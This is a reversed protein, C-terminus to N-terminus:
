PWAMHLLITSMWEAAALILHPFFSLLFFFFGRPLFIIAQGIVYPLGYNSFCTRWCAQLVRTGGYPRVCRRRGCNRSGVSGRRSGRGPEVADICVDWFYHRRRSEGHALTWCFPLHENRIATSSAHLTESQQRKGGSLFGHGYMCVLFLCVSFSTDGWVIM